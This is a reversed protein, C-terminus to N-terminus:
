HRDHWNNDDWVKKFTSNFFPNSSDSQINNFTIRRQRQLLMGIPIKELVIKNPGYWDGIPYGLEDKHEFLPIEVEFYKGSTDSEEFPGINFTMGSNNGFTANDAETPPTITKFTINVEPNPYPKPVRIYIRTLPSNQYWKPYKEVHYEIITYSSVLEFNEESSSEIIVDHNIFINVSNSVTSVNFTLDNKPIRIYKGIIDEEIKYGNCSYNDGIDIRHLIHYDDDEKIYSCKFGTAYEYDTGMHGLYSTIFCIETERKNYTVDNKNIDVCPFYCPSTNNYSKVFNEENTDKNVNYVDLIFNESFKKVEPDETNIDVTLYFRDAPITTTSGSPIIDIDLFYNIDRKTYTLKNENILEKENIVNQTEFFISNDNIEKATLCKKHSAQYNSLEFEVDTPLFLRVGDIQTYGSNENYINTLTNHLSSLTIIKNKEDM